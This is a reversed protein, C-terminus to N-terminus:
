LQALAQKVTRRTEPLQAAKLKKKMAERLEDSKTDDLVNKMSAVLNIIQRDKDDVEGKVGVLAKEMDQPTMDQPRKRM